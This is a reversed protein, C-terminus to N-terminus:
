AFTLQVDTSASANTQTYVVYEVTDVIATTKTFETTYNLNNITDKISTLNGFSAPYAYCVKGWDMTIGSYVYNKTDKLVGNLTKIVAETPAGTNADVIGYYSKSVFKISKTASATGGKTDTVIVKFTTDDVITDAPTYVFEFLGGNAVNDTVTHVVAGNVLFEVKAIESTKKTVTADMTISDVYDFVAEYLTTSPNITLKVEPTIYQTLMDRIIDEMLTGVPYTKGVTVNGIAIDSKIQSTIATSLTDFQLTHQSGDALLTFTITKATNDVTVSTIGLAVKKAFNKAQILADDARMGAM